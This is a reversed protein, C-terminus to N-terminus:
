MNFYKEEKIRIYAFMNWFLVVHKRDKVSGSILFFILMISPEVYIYRLYQRYREDQLWM